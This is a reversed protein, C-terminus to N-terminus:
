PTAGTLEVTFQLTTRNTDVLHKRAFASLDKASIKAIHAFLTDIADPTGVHKGVVHGIVVSTNHM